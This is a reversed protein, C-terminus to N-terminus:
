FEFSIGRSGSIPLNPIRIRYKHTLLPPIPCNDQPTPVNEKKRRHENFHGSFQKQTLCYLLTPPSPSLAPGNIRLVRIFKLGGVWNGGEGSGVSISVSFVRREGVFGFPFPDGGCGSFIELRGELIEQPTKVGTKVIIYTQRRM